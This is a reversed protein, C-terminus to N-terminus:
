AIIQSKIFTHIKSVCNIILRFLDSDDHYYVFVAVCHKTMNTGCENSM